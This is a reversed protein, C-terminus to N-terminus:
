EVATCLWGGPSASKQCCLLLCLWVIKNKSIPHLVNCALFNPFIKGIVHLECFKHWHGTKIYHETLCCEHGGYIFMINIDIIDYVNIKHINIWQASYLFQVYEPHSRNDSRPVYKM